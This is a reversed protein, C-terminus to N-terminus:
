EYKKIRNNELKTLAKYLPTVLTAMAINGCMHIVDAPLGAIIWAIMGPFSLGFVLAQYPAYLTGFILGHFGCFVASLGAKFKLPARKPILMVLLWLIPFIYIYPIWWFVIYGGTLILSSIATLIVYVLISYIAKWRYVLTIVTISLAVGHINPLFELGIDSVFMIVGFMTFLVIDALKTSRM